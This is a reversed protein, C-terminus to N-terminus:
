RSPKLKSGSAYVGIWHNSFRLPVQPSVLPMHCNVCNSPAQVECAPKPRAATALHCELCRQNYFSSKKKGAPEHMDHCTLCTLAGSSKRFCASENLYLPEHRVNWSYNWDVIQGAAAPARHCSGCFQNLQSASFNRPNQINKRSPKLSHVDGPGHCAECRVGLETLKVEGTSDFSVPGTSHCEFCGAIGENPDSVSYIRGAAEPLSAPRLEEQGPTAGWARLMTYFTSYHEVYWDKNVKTVFTVAQQGAGFAWEMPLDMIQAGDSIRTRLADGVRFIEFGYGPNRTVKAGMPFSAALLHDAANSLAHTHVSLSQRAFEEPHCGACTKSGVFGSAAAGVQMSAALITLIRALRESM